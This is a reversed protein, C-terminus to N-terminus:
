TKKLVQMVKGTGDTTKEITKGNPMKLTVNVGSLPDGNENNRVLVQLQSANDLYLTKTRDAIKFIEFPALSDIGAIYNPHAAQIIYKNRFDLNCVFEGNEDTKGIPTGKDCGTIEINAESIPKNTSLDKVKFVFRQPGIKFSYIDDSGIGDPRNSTFYGSSFDETVIFSFDDYTSNIPQGLNIVNFTDAVPFAAFIDLGGFGTLGDSSFFIVGRKDIFPFMEKGATNFQPGLNVPESWWEITDGKSNISDIKNSKYLDTEGFAGTMNSAFYLTREDTSFVPHGVSYDDSNYQFDRPRKWRKGNWDSIYIKLNNTQGDQNNMSFSEDNRTLWITQDNNIFSMPGEHYRTNIKPIKEIITEGKKNETFYYIDLFPQDNWSYTRGSSDRASVFAITDKFFAASMDSFRTNFDLCNVTDVLHLLNLTSFNEIREIQKIARKDNPVKELYAKFERIAQEFQGDTLLLSAYNFYDENRAKGTQILKEFYGLAKQYQGMKLYCQALQQIIYTDNERRQLLKEYANAAESYAYLEFLRDANSLAINQAPLTNVALIIMLSLIYRKM